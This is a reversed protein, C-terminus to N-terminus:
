LVLCIYINECIYISHTYIHMYQIHKHRYTYIYMYVNTINWDCRFEIWAIYLCNIMTELLMNKYINEQKDPKSELCTWLTCLTGFQLVTHDLCLWYWHMTFDIILDKPGTFMQSKKGKKIEKFFHEQWSVQRSWEYLVHLVGSYEQNYGCRQVQVWVSDDGVVFM